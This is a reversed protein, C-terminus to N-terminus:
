KVRYITKQFFFGTSEGLLKNQENLWNEKDLDSMNKYNNIYYSIQLVAELFLSHEIYDEKLLIYELDTNLLSDLIVCGNLISDKTFFVGDSNESVILNTASIKENLTIKDEKKKGLNEYYHSVLKRKSFAISPKTILELIPKIKSKNIIEIVEDKTIEKSLLAYKVGMDKYYDCTKYNTVMHTQSWVLDLNLGLDRKIKLLATDYFFVGKISIDNLENLISKVNEIEENMINKNMSVFITIEPYKDRIGKIEDLTYYSSYEVSYDKLPLLFTTINHEIYEDISKDPKVIIEM